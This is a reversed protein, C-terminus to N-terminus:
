RIPRKLLTKTNRLCLQTDILKPYGAKSCPTCQRIDVSSAASALEELYSLTLITLHEGYFSAHECVPRRHRKTQGPLRFVLRHGEVLKRATADGNPGGTHIIGGQKLCRFMEKFHFELSGDPLHEIVHHSSLADVTSNPFPLENRLDVWVDPKATLLNADVHIWERLYHSTGSGLQVKVPETGRRPSRLYKYLIGDGENAL